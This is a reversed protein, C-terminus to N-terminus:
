RFRHGLGAGAVDSAVLVNASGNAFRVLTQTRQQQELDGHLTVAKMGERCLRASVEACEIKTNCFVMNREGGFHTLVSVLAQDRDKADIGCWQQRIPPADEHTTVDVHVADDNLGHALNQVGEPFTASFLLTQRPNRCIVAFLTLRKRLDWTSCGTPRTM